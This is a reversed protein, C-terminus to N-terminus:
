KSGTVVLFDEHWGLGGPLVTDANFEPFAMSASSDNSESIVFEQDNEDYGVFTYSDIGDTHVIKIGNQLGIYGNFEGM